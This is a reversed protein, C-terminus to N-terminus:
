GKAVEKDKLPVWFLLLMSPISIIFSMIFMNLYGMMDVIVGGFGGIVTSPLSMIASGIAYHAAKYDPKCTRLIFVILVADGLGAAWQEYCHVLAITWLDAPLPPAPPTLPLPHSWALWVYALINFNMLITLPWISKALGNKRIWWAGLWTGAISGFSGALGSLWAIQGKTVGLDKMLFPTGMSFLISDGIKYFVIFLIVLVIREQALWSPFAKIFVAIESKLTRRVTAIGPKFQPLSFTHLVTIALMALAGVGFAVSWPKYPGAGAMSAAAFAVMGILGFRVLIFSIRWAFVRYGTCGAQQSKDPLGEIFHGDIAIDNTASVFALVVFLAGCVALWPAATEPSPIMWCVAAIMLTFLAILAQLAIMWSRKTGVIDILPAWLFKFNWPIGLFNLYGIVRNSAGIDTFFVSSMSRIIGFPMGEAFYTSFVWVSPKQLARAM